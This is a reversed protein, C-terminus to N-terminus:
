VRLTLVPVSSGIVVEEAISSEFLQAFGSRGHTAMVILDANIEESFYQIGEGVSLDNFIYFSPNKIGVYHSFTRMYNKVSRDRQFDEPTNVRLINVEAEFLSQFNAVVEGIAKEEESMSTAFVINKFVGIKIGQRVTLVPCGIKRVVKEAHSRFFFQELDSHLNEGMVVLDTSQEKIIEELHHFPNGFRILSFIELAGKVDWTRRVSVSLDELKQKSERILEFQYRLDEKSAHRAEGTVSITEPQLEEVVHLFTLSANAKLATKVGAEIADLSAPSFDIPVLINKLKTLAWINTGIESLPILVDRLFHSM